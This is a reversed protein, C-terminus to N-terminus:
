KTLDWNHFQAIKVIKALEVFNGNLLSEDRRFMLEEKTINNMIEVVWGLYVSNGCNNCYGKRFMGFFIRKLKLETNCKNCKGIRM